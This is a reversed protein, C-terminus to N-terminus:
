SKQSLVITALPTTYQRIGNDDYDGDLDYPSGVVLADADNQRIIFHHEAGGSNDETVRLKYEYFEGFETYQLVIKDSVNVFTDSRSTDWTLEQGVLHQIDATGSLDHLLQISSINISFPIVGGEGGAGADGAGADADGAGEGADGGAGVDGGQLIDGLKLSETNYGHFDLGAVLVDILGNFKEKVSEHLDTRSQILQALGNRVEEDSALFTDLTQQIYGENLLGNVRNGLNQNIETELTSLRNSLDSVEGQTKRSQIIIGAMYKCWLFYNKM